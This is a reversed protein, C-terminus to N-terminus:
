NSRKMEGLLQELYTQRQRWMSIVGNRDIIRMPSGAEKMKELLAKDRLMKPVRGALFNIVAASTGEPAMIGRFNVSSDDVDIGLERFTPVDPLFEQNRELDAVALIKLRDRSRYADSLNSFGSTVQGGMVYQLAPVAGETPLYILKIDAAKELQLMAIHHGVYLGAGSVTVKGPNTRAYEILGDVSSFPSSKAVILVAPDAGWNAIPELNEINYKTKFMLSHAIFHPLNYASLTYGDKPAREAFWNWGIQGGAGPRNIIVVPQGLYDENGALRTVIRAQFDTAGGPAYSVILSIPREPYPEAALLPSILAILLGPLVILSGRIIRAILKDM